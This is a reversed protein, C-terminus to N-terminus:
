ENPMKQGNRKITTQGRNNGPNIGELIAFTVEGPIAIEEGTQIAKLNNEIDQIDKTDQYAEQLKQYEPYPIVAWEPQGNKEIVQASM